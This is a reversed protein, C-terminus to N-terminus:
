PERSPSDVPTTPAFLHNPMVPVIVLVVRRKSPLSEALDAPLLLEAVNPPPAVPPGAVPGRGSATRVRPAHSTILLVQGRDLSAFFGATPFTETTTRRAGPVAGGPIFATLLELDVVANKELPVSWGRLLLQLTGCALRRAGGNVVCAAGEPVNSSAVRHWQTAQGLWTSVNSSTGGLAVLDEPLADLTSQAVSFGSRTLGSRQEDSLATPPHQDFFHDIVATNDDIAWTLVAIGDASGDDVPLSVRMMPAAPSTETAASGEDVVADPRETPNTANPGACSAIILACLACVILTRM